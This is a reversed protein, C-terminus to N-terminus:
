PNNINQWSSTQSDNILSWYIAPTNGVGGAATVGTLTSGRGTMTVTGVAGSSGVGSLSVTVSNTVSGVDGKAVNGGLPVVVSGVFGTANNGTIGLTNTAVATGAKGASNVGTLAV